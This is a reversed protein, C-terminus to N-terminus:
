NVPIASIECSTFVWNANSSNVNVSMVGTSNSVFAYAFENNPGAVGVFSEANNEEGPTSTAAWLTFNPNPSLSNAKFTLVYTTNAKVQIDIRLYSSEGPAFMFENLEPNVYTPAILETAVFGIQFMQSPTITVTTAAPAAVQQTKMTGKPGPSKLAHTKMVSALLQNKDNQTIPRGTHLLIPKTAPVVVPGKRNNQVEQLAANQALVSPIFAVAVLLAALTKM